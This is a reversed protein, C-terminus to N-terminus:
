PSVTSAATARGSVAVLGAAILLTVALALMLSPFGIPLQAVLPGCSAGAFVLLGNIAIAGGRSSGGRGGILAIVAPVITAVGLVFVVSATVLTWLAGVSIAVAALGAAALLYGVIAVRAAGSRRVLWGALPALLMAPLGALRVLLIGTRDLGFETRLLPGLAAYMAVFSLLVTFSAANPLLLDRRTALTGLQRYRQGLSTSPGPRAPELLITAMAIAAIVFAPAALGFVWRWGLTQAVGQAYVQGLIGASLFATSIAGIGTSRWHPPLAEGVYALAAAAFSSAVLGQVCRLLAIM